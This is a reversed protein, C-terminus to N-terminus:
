KELGMKKILAEYRPDSRLTDMFPATKLTVMWSEREDYAKDLYEFAQDKKGLGLYILAKYLSSVYRQQSLKSLQDLMSLAEDDQGSMGYAFGLYGVAVPSGPWLNLFKKLSAIAEEWREKVAYTLGLYFHAIAFNPDMELTKQLQEIAEDYQRWWYLGLGLVANVVLWLPDLEVSKKVEAFAEVGHGTISLYLGYFYHAAAYNPNLELARKFAKEAEAWDWDYFTKIWGLSAYAEALTDDIELAKAVASKAKSYGERPPLFGFHAFINYCDAIGAYALAYLPDKDIAEQFCEIGKQLGGEYRRNWFYRGKLYLSYAEPDDTYRKVLKAKEEKLLNVKLKNVISLSIEEQIAFIDEMERDYRKSWLHYGDAVNVLQATIRLRNGAKRVSGELLTEVNLKRGIERIDIDKGKFSFASTRAVVSLGEVQTLANIIEEAMGDCFYEQEKDASLNTFPLVAISPMLKKSTELTKTLGAEVETRVKRLDASLDDVHQYRMERNKELAKNIIRQLEEPVNPKFRTLPEPTENIISYIIAAEHEGKFPLQGAIMEYIVVGFSFIDSRQDLEVGQVQEPSMYALTGLTSGTKTVKSVGRLKALGFDMIKVQGRPTLKINDSKIDRHVIGKEHAANLGEAIQISINLIDQISLAKEKILEKILKGEVYEMCIFCEGESEDIEYITTINTHNLASAAKAEHEFRIKAENDCLFYKPLFKLAVIRDLKTDQAKYVVGMGGEGLKELIKYHSITKGIM